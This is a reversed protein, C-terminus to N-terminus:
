VKMEKLLAEELSYKDWSINFKSLSVRFKKSSWIDIINLLQGFLKPIKKYWPYPHLHQNPSHVTLLLTNYRASFFCFAPDHLSNV